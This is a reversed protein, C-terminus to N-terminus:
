IAWLYLMLASIWLDPTRIGTYGLDKVLKCFSVSTMVTLRPLRIAVWGRQLVFFVDDWARLGLLYYCCRLIQGVAVFKVDDYNEQQSSDLSIWNQGFLWIEFNSRGGLKPDCNLDPWLQYHDHQTDNSEPGCSLGKTGVVWKMRRDRKTWFNHAFYYNGWLTICLPGPRFNVQGSTM